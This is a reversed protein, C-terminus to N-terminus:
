DADYQIKSRTDEQPQEAEKHGPTWRLAFPMVWTARDVFGVCACYQSPKTLPAATDYGLSGCLTLCSLLVPM